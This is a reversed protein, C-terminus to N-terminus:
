EYIIRTGLHTVPLYKRATEIATRNYIIRSQDEIKLSSDGESEDAIYLVAGRVSSHQRFNLEGGGIHLLIGELLFNGTLTTNGSTVLIGSYSGKLPTGATCKFLGSPSPSTDQEASLDAGFRGINNRFHNWFQPSSLYVLNPYAAMGEGSIAFPVDSDRCEPPLESDAFINLVASQAWALEGLLLVSSEEGGRIQFENGEFVWGETPDFCVLPSPLAFPNEKRFIGELLTVQNKIGPLESELLGNKVTGLSRVRVM